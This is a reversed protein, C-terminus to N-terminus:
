KLNANMSYYVTTYLILQVTIASPTPPPQFTFLKFKSAHFSQNTKRKEALCQKTKLSKVSNLVTM